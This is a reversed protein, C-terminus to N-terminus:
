TPPAPEPASPVSTAPEAITFRKDNALTLYQVSFLRLEDMWVQRVELGAAAALSAFAELSYKYSCETRITEGPVFDIADRGIRVVQRRLSELHMEIRSHQDDFFARHKFASLDFDGALERNIRGLLNLNFAATVGARDNYAPEVIEKPKRLDVGLLIAGSDGVLAAMGKLLEIAEVPGFNGITSGPFYVARRTARGVSRPLDFPRTFDAWLPIVDIGPLRGALVSAAVFLHERSIDVPVYGAPATMQELLLPTKVSSGSGYEVLLCHRGLLAAMEQARARMIALETRTLYYEPLQCIQDFLLSGREDYFYKCPLEKPRRSLGALVDARFSAVPARRTLVIPGAASRHVAM